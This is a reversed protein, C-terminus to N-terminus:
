KFLCLKPWTKQLCLRREAPLSWKGHLFIRIEEIGSSPRRTLLDAMDIEDRLAENVRIM